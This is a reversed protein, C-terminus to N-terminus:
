RELVVQVRLVQGNVILGAGLGTGFTLFILHRLNARGRGAGFHFEALAGANGDHEVYVPLMPFAAQLHAKLAVGHWGPLHPPDILEGVAIRLPGGISISVAVIERGQAASAAKVNQMEGLLRPFSETFPRQAETAWAVRQLIEADFAGEVVATKTGGVDLGLITQRTAPQHKQM